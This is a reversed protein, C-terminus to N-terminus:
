ELRDTVLEAWAPVFGSGIVVKQSAIHGMSTGYYPLRGKDIITDGDIISVVDYPGDLDQSVSNISQKLLYTFLYILALVALTAIVSLIYKKNRNKRKKTAM